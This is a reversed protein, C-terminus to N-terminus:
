KNETTFVNRVPGLWFGLTLFTMKRQDFLYYPKENIFTDNKWCSKLVAGKMKENIVDEVM